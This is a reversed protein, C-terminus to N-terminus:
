PKQDESTAEQNAPVEPLPDTAEPVPLPESPEIAKGEGAITKKRRHRLFLYAALLLGCGILVLPLAVQLFSGIAALLMGLIGIGAAGPTHNSPQRSNTRTSRPQSQSVGRLTKLIALVGVQTDWVDPDFYHDRTYKGRQQLNTSAVIYPSRMSPHRASTNRIRPGNRYGYGNYPEMAWLMREPPWEQIQHFGKEKLAHVAADHWTNFPGRGVPVISTKRGTGVIKEGNHLVGRWKGVDGQGAERIHICFVMEAPVGTVLEVKDYVARHRTFLAQLNHLAQHDRVIVSKDWWERYEPGYRQFSIYAM